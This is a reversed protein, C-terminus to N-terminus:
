LREMPNRMTIYGYHRDNREKGFEFFNFVYMSFKKFHIVGLQRKIM